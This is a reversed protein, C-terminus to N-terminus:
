KLSINGLLDFSYTISTNIMIDKEYVCNCPNLVICIAKVWLNIM